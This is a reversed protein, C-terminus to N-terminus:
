PTESKIRKPSQLMLAYAPRLCVEIENDKLDFTEPSHQHRSQHNAKLRSLASTLEPSLPIALQELAAGITRAPGAKLDGIDVVAVSAPPQEKTFRELHTYNGSFIETFLRTTATGGPDTAFLSRASALSSLQSSLASKPERICLIFKADPFLHSLSGAWSAFAANKSLLRKRSGACYLHKQLCRKYFMLLPGRRHAPVTDLRGVQKLWPSFPFALLLIFCSGAPLLWLYDEEPAAPDVEHIDNFEGSASRILRTLLRHGFAGTARDLASLARIFKRETVSPALIAEWTSVTTFQRTDTALTRHVFTTGSRPIGTIFLPATVEVQRYARFFLEDLLFGLWHLSQFGCYLPFGFILLLARKVGLPAGSHKGPWFSRTIWSLHLGVSRLFVEFM